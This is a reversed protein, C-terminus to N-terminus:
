AFWRTRWTEESSIIFPTYEDETKGKKQADSIEALVEVPRGVAANFGVATLYILCNNWLIVLIHLPELVEIFQLQVIVGIVLSFLFSAWKPDWWRTIKGIWHHIVSTILVVVLACGGITLTQSINFFTEQMM